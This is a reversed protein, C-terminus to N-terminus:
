IVYKNNNTKNTLGCLFKFFYLNTIKNKLVFFSLTFIIIRSCSQCHQHCICHTFSASQSNTQCNFCTNKSINKKLFFFILIINNKKQLRLLQQHLMMLHQLLAQVILHLQLINNEIYKKEKKENQFKVKINVWSRFPISDHELHLKTSLFRDVNM